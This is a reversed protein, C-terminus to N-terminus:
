GTVPRPTRKVKAAFWTRYSPSGAEQGRFAITIRKIAVTPQFWGTAGETDNAADDAGRLLGGNAYETWDPVPTASPSDCEGPLTAISVNCFNFVRGRLEKGSVAKGRADVATIRAQDVDIDSLAFGLRNAPTPRKFKYTTTAVTNFGSDDVRVKLYRIEDVEPAGPGTPGFAKGFPTAKTFWDEGDTGNLLETDEGDNASKNVTYTANPFKKGLGFDLTGNHNQAVPDAPSITWDAHKKIVGTAALALGTASVLAITTLAATM